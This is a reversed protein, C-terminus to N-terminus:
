YISKFHPYNNTQQCFIGGQIAYSLLISVKELRQNKNSYSNITDSIDAFEQLMMAYDVENKSIETRTRETLAEIEEKGLSSSKEPLPIQVKLAEGRLDLSVNQQEEVQELKKLANEEEAEM